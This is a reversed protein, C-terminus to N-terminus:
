PFGLPFRGNQFNVHGDGQTGAISREGLESSKGYPVGMADLDNGDASSLTALSRWRM